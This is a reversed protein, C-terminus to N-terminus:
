RREGEEEGGFLFHDLAELPSLDGGEEEVLVIEEETEKEAHTHTDTHTDTNTNGQGPM